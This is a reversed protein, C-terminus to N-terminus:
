KGKHEEFMNRLQRTRYIQAAHRAIKRPVGISVFLEYVQQRDRLDYTQNEYKIIHKDNM